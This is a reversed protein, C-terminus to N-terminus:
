KASNGAPNAQQPPVATGATSQEVSQSTGVTPAPTSSLTHPSGVADGPPSGGQSSDPLEHATGTGLAPSGNGHEGAQGNEGAQGKEGNQGAGARNEDARAQGAVAHEPGDGNREATGAATAQSSANAHNAHHAAGPVGTADGTEDVASDDSGGGVFPADVMGSGVGAAGVGIVLAAILANGKALALATGGAGAAAAGTGAAASSGGGSMAALVGAATVAPLAPNLAHLDASRQTIAARFDQCGDCTRLHARIAKGRVRRGDRESIVERVDACQMERGRKAERLAERAEYVAQRAAGESCGLALAIQAYGLDSLERMVLAGRQREPLQRLDAVLERLRERDDADADSSHVTDVLEDAPMAPEIRRRAISIAENHAVRYLWPRLAIQRQDGPLARLASAMANQLADQAEHADSLIARCYRYLEEHYRRFIEEFAAEDGTTAMRALRADTLLRRPLVRTQGDLGKASASVSM